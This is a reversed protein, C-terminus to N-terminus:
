RGEASPDCTFAEYSHGNPDQVYVGRGGNLHNIQGNWGEALGAGYPAGLSPLRDLLADFEADTVLFGFHYPQFPDSDDFDLTLSDNVQVPAFPGEVGRFPFGFLGAFFTAAEVKDRSPVITHNLLVAPRAEM